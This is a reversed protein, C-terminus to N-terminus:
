DRMRKTRMSPLRPKTGTGFLSHGSTLCRASWISSCHGGHAESGTQASQRIGGRRLRASDSTHRSACAGRLSLRTREGMHLHRCLVRARSRALHAGHHPREYRRQRCRAARRPSPRDRLPCLVRAHSPLVDASSAIEPYRQSLFRWFHGLATVKQRQTAYLDSIRATYTELYLVTVSRFREPIDAMSVLDAIAHRGRRLRRTPGRQPTRAFVGMTCLAADLHRHRHSRPPITKLDQETIQTLSRYGRALLIRVGCSTACM